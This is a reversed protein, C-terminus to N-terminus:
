RRKGGMGNAHKEIAHRHKQEARLYRWGQRTHLWAIGEASIFAYIIYAALWVGAYMTGFWAIVVLSVMPLVIPGVDIAVFLPVGFGVVAVLAAMGGMALALRGVVLNFARARDQHSGTTYTLSQGPSAQGDVTQPFQAPTPYAQVPLQKAEPAVFTHAQRNVVPERQPPPRRSFGNPNYDPDYDPLEDPAFMSATNHYETM